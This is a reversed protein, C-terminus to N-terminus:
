IGTNKFSPPCIILAIPSPKHLAISGKESLITPQPKSITPPILAKPGGMAAAIDAIIATTELAIAAHGIARILVKDSKQSCIEAQHLEIQSSITDPIQHPIEFEIPHIVLLTRSNALPIHVAHFRREFYM